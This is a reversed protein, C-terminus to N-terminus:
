AQEGEKKIMEKLKKKARNVLTGVTNVPKGLARSIEEYSKNEFFRLKAVEKYKPSLKKFAQKLKEKHERELWLDEMDENKDEAWKYYSLFDEWQITKRRQRKKIFNVAENHAIRYIWSSFKRSSDFRSLNEFVKVFVEQLADKVEAENGIMRKLYVSIKGQYRNVLESFAEPDKTLIYEVLDNDSKDRLKDKSM